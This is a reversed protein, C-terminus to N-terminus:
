QSFGASFENDMTKYDKNAVTYVSTFHYGNKDRHADLWALRSLAPYQNLALHSFLQFDTETMSLQKLVALHHQFENQLDDNISNCKGASSKIYANLKM